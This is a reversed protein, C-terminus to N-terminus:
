LPSVHKVRQMVKIERHFIARAKEIDVDPQARLNVVKIAFRHGSTQDVASYVKGFAGEGIEQRLHKIDQFLPGKRTNLRTIHWSQAELGDNETPRDRSRVDQLLQQSTEYGQVALAKLSEAKGTRWIL